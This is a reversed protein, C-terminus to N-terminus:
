SGKQSAHEALLCWTLSPEHKKPLLFVEGARHHKGDPTVCEESAVYREHGALEKPVPGRIPFTRARARLRDVEAKRAESEVRQAEVRPNLEQNKDKAV